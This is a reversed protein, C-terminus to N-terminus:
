AIKLGFKQELIEQANIEALCAILEVSVPIRKLM